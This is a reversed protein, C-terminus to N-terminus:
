GPEAVVSGSRKGAGVRGRWASAVAVLGAAVVLILVPDLPARKLPTGVM